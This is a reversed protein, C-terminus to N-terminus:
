FVVDTSRPVWASDCQQAALHTRTPAVGSLKAAIVWPQLLGLGLLTLAHRFAVFKRQLLLVM